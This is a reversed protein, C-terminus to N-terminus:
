HAGALDFGFSQVVRVDEPRLISLDHDKFRGSSPPLKPLAAVRSRVSEDVELGIFEIIRSVEDEPSMCLDEFRVLLAKKPGFALCAERARSNVSAWYRLSARPILEPNSPVPVGFYRGWSKLQNQNRSFAMDLGHRVVHIYKLNRFHAGLPELFLHSIPEKWGWGVYRRDYIEDGPMMLAVFRGKKWMPHRPASLDFLARTAFAIDRPSRSPRGFMSDTFLKLGYRIKPHGAEAMAHSWWRPREFLATFSLNDIAPNLDQGLFVGLERLIEAVVRTGSGGVAGVVIPSDERKNGEM